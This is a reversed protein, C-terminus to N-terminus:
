RRPSLDAGNKKPASAEKRQATSGERIWHGLVWVLFVLGSEVVIFLAAIPM